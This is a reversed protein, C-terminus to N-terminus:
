GIHPAQKVIGNEDHFVRVRNTRYDMTVMSNQPLLQVNLEANDALIIQKAEDATKGVCEPWSQKGQPLHFDM